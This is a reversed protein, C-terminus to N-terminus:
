QGVTTSGAPAKEDIPTTFTGDMIAKQKATVKDILAQPIGGPVDTNIPALSSGGNKMYSYQGLNQSHLTGAKFEKLVEEVTPRM